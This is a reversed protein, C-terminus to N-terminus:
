RDPTLSSTDPAAQAYLERSLNELTVELPGVKVVVAKPDAAGHSAGAAVGMLVVALMWRCLANGARAAKTLSRQPSFEHAPSEPSRRTARRANRVPPGPAHIDARSLRDM